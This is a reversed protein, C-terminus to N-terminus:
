KTFHWVDRALMHSFMEIQRAGELEKKSDRVDRYYNDAALAPCTM